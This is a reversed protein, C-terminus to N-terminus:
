AQDAAIELAGTAQQQTNIMQASLSFTAKSIRHRAGLQNDAGARTLEVQQQVGYKTNAICRGIDAPGAILANNFM